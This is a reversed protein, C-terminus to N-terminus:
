SRPKRASCLYWSKYGGKNETGFQGSVGARPPGFAADQFGVAVAEFGTRSALGEMDASVAGM